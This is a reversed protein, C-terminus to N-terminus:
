LACCKRKKREKQCKQCFTDGANTNVYILPCFIINPANSLKKHQSNAFSFRQRERVPWALHRFFSLNNETVAWRTNLVWSYM